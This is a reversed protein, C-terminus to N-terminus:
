NQSEPFRPEFSSDFCRLFTKESKDFKKEPEDFLLRADISGTCKRRSGSNVKKRSHSSKFDNRRTALVVKSEQSLKLQGGAIQKAIENSRGRAKYKVRGHRQISWRHNYREIQSQGKRAKLDNISPESRTLDIRNSNERYM